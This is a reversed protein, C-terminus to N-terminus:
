SPLATPDIATEPFTLTAALTDVALDCCHLQEGVAAITLRGAGGIGEAEGFPTWGGDARRVTQWVRGDGTATRLHLAGGLGAVALDEPHGRRGAQQELDGFPFWAGDARRLTHWLGTPTVACLHMDSGVGACAVGVVFGPDGTQGKVDGFPFWSGDSRRITHWLRGDDTVACVHLSDGSAACAIKLITGRQGAVGEVNGFPQWSGDPFRIAHWLGTNSLGCLHLTQGLGAAAVERFDGREHAIGEVDEFTQWEGGARRLTHWLRGDVAVGCLHFDGGVGAGALAQWPGRVGALTDVPTFPGWSRDGHRATHWLAVGLQEPAVARARALDMTECVTAALTDLDWAADPRLDPAVALLMTQPAQADPQDYHFAVGTVESRNPIVEVWEDVLLGAFPQGFSFNEPLQAVLSLRGGPVSQGAEPPLAVWRDPERYPLQGVRPALKMGTALAEAYALASTLRAAGERVRAVRQLWVVPALPEDGTLRRGAAFTQALVGAPEPALPTLVLFDDGFVRKLRRRHFDELAAPGSDPVANEHQELQKLRRDVEQGVSGAQALLADVGAAPPLPVAGALGFGALRRLAARLAEGDGTGQAGVLADGAERLAAAAGDARQRLQNAADHGAAANEGPLALDAADAARAGSVLARVAHLSELFEPVGLITAPWAPDRSFDLRVVATAPIGAPRNRLLLDALRQELEGQQATDQSEGLYLADLPSLGLLSLPWEARDLRAGTDPDVFEARYRVSDPDPLLGALWANLAPEAAARPNRPDARWPTADAPAAPFLALVRHTATVGSRPTRVLEPEPPAAQGAAIVDLAGATRAPNGQVLQYVSEGMLVDGVSDLMEDLARLQEMVRGQDPSNLRPLGLGPRNPDADDWPLTTSDWRHERNGTRWRRALALGDVVNNAAVSERAESWQRALLAQLQNVEVQWDAYAADRAQRSRRSSEILAGAQEEARRVEQEAAAILGNPGEYRAIEADIAAILTGHRGAGGALGDRRRVADVLAAQASDRAGQLTRLTGFWTGLVEDGPLYLDDSTDSTPESLVSVPKAIRHPPIAQARANLAAEASAVAAQTAALEDRRARLRDRAAAVTDRRARADQAARDAVAAATEDALAAAAAARYRTEQTRTREIADTLADEGQLVALTRFPAIYHDLGQEHLAREFRYGLLAGLPQGQRVGDLLWRARRVRASSLDVALAEGQSSERHALYGSRLVAAAAAHNLSPAQLYGQSSQRALPRLNELYGYGGLHIGGRGQVQRLQHLRRTALSTVWADLRYAGLDLAEAVLSQLVAPPRDALAGLRTGFPAVIQGRDLTVPPAGADAGLRRLQYHCSSADQRLLPSLEDANGARLVRAGRRRWADWLAKLRQALSAEDSGAPAQWRELSIAPLLGYPQDGVRLAPLPGRARVWAAFHERVATATAPEVLRSLLASEFSQWLAANVRGADAQEQGDAGAAHAFVAASMGLAGAALDGDSGDGAHVRPAGRELAHSQASPPDASSYGAPNGDTNNTPTGQPIFALGRTYHHAEMLRALRAAAEPSDGDVWADKGRLFAKVGVVVLRDFGERAQEATLPIRLGMGADVAADFDVMWAMGANWQGNPAQPAPGVPLPDAALLPGWHTLDLRGNRYGLAIWRDPLVETHPARTWPAARSGVTGGQDLARAIWAARLTGFRGVLQHWAALKLDEGAEPAATRAQFQEGWQREEPTLEPEHSDVHIADPYIRLRLEPGAPGTAFRTELRVPLLLAPLGAPPQGLLRATAAERAGRYDDVRAQLLPVEAEAAGAEGSLAGLQADMRRIEALLADARGQLAALESQAQQLRAETEAVRERASLAQAVAADYELGLAELQELWPQLDQVYDPDNLKGGTTLRPKRLKHQAVATKAAARASEAAQLTNRDTALQLTLPGVTNQTATLAALVGVRVGERRGRVTAAVERRRVAAGKRTRNQQLAAQAEGLRAALVAAAQELRTRDLPEQVIAEALALLDDLAARAQDFRLQAASLNPLLAALQGDLATFEAAAAQAQAELTPIVALQTELTALRARLPAARTRVGEAAQLAAARQADYGAARAEAAAISQELTPIEATRTQASALETQAASLRLNAGNLEERLDYLEDPDANAIVRKLYNVEQQALNVEEQLAPIQAALDYLSALRIRWQRIQAREAEALQGAQAAQDLYSNEENVLAAIQVRLQDREVQAPQLAALQQRAADHRQQAEARAQALSAQQQRLNGLTQNAADFAARALAIEHQLYTM